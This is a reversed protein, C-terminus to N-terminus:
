KVVVLPFDQGKTWSRPFQMSGRYKQTLEPVNDNIWSELEKVTIKKDNKGGDAEGKLGNLLAYTFVGHGLEDFETAYQQSGTSAMLVMGTSRALQIMAKEEAAGRRSFTEVAGGSQCADLVILQKQAKIKSFTNRLEAASFGRQALMDDKGYLQTVDHLALYFDPPTLDTGESMVGHGAYYFVFVDQDQANSMLDSLSAEINSKTAEKDTILNVVIQDFIGTSRGKVEEVFASADAMAYNLNYNTNLYQDIGIGLIYLNAAVSRGSYTVTIEDIESEYGNRSVAKASIVNEGPALSIDFSKMEGAVKFGREDGAVLKGNVYLLIEEVPDGKPIGRVDVKINNGNFSAGSAPSTIKATPASNLMAALDGQNEQIEGGLLSPLLGPTFFKNFSSSLSTQNVVRGRSDYERWELKDFAGATGDVRGDKAIVAWDNGDIFIDAVAKREDRSFLNIIGNPNGVLFYEGQGIKWPMSIGGAGFTSNADIYILRETALKEYTNLDILTATGTALSYVFMVEENDDVIISSGINDYSRITKGTRFDQIEVKDESKGGAKIFITSVIFRNDGTVLTYSPIGNKTKISKVERGNSTDYVKISKNKFGGTVGSFYRGDVSTFGSMIPLEYKLDLGQSSNVFLGTKANYFDTLNLGVFFEGQSGGFTYGPPLNFEQEAVFSQPNISKYSAQTMQPYLETIDFNRDAMHTYDIEYLTNELFMLQKGWQNRIVEGTKLDLLTGQSNVSSNKGSYVSFSSAVAMYRKDKSVTPIIIDSAGVKPKKLSASKQSLFIQNQATLYSYSSILLISLIIRM